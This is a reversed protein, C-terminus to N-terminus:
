SAVNVVCLSYLHCIMLTANSAHMTVIGHNIKAIQVVDVHLTVPWLSDPCQEILNWKSLWLPNSQNPSSAGNGGLRSSLDRVM